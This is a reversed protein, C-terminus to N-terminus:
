ILWRHSQRQERVNVSIEGCKVSDEILKCGLVDFADRTEAIDGRVTRLWTLDNLSKCRQATGDHHSIRVGFNKTEDRNRIRRFHSHNGIGCAPTGRSQVVIMAGEHRTEFPSKQVDAQALADGSEDADRRATSL